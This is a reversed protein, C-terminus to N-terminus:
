KLIGQGNRRSIMRRWNGYGTRNRAYPKKIICDKIQKLHDNSIIEIIAGHVNGRESGNSAYTDTWTVKIKDGIEYNEKGIPAYGFNEIRKGDANTYSGYIFYGFGHRRIEVIDGDGNVNTWTGNLNIM